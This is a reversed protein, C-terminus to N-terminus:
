RWLFEPLMAILAVAKQLREVQDADSWDIEQQGDGDGSVHAALAQCRDSSLADGLLRRSWREIAQRATGSGTRERWAIRLDRRDPDTLDRLLKWGGLLSNTGLWAAAHDPHGNPAPWEFWRYGTQAVEWFLDPTPHVSASLGRAFAVVVEHPRRVKGGWSEQFEASRAIERVVRRIQDPAEREALWVEAVRDILGASPQDSVLRICLKTALHRATGPHAALLDLVQEGDAMPPRHSAFEVGLVRKQYPDHWAELYHFAGTNPLKSGDDLENGNAITWGTFARAVEFVDEDTYGTAVGHGDQPVDRWSAYRHDFYCAEGLTHLELLERAFNENAPSAKSSANNLYLLMAPSRAIAGLFQRFNGFAHRRIVERDHSPWLSAIPEDSSACINFHNHWFDVLVERLQYPSHVARIWAAAKVEDLPRVKEAWSLGHKDDLREWLERQKSSLFALPRMEKRAPRDDTAEVELLLQAAGIRHATEEDDEVPADLQEELFADFGL